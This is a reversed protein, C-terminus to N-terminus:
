NNGFACRGGACANMGCGGGASPASDPSGSTTAFASLKRHVDSSSCSPCQLSNDAESMRRLQEYNQGCSECLYEYIPM